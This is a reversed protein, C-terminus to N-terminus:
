KANLTVDRGVVELGALLSPAGKGFPRVVLDQDIGDAGGFQALRDALVRADLGPLTVLPLDAAAACPAPQGVIGTQVEDIVTRAVGRGPIRLLPRAVVLSIPLACTQVGTVL